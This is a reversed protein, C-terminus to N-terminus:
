HDLVLLSCGVEFTKHVGIKAVLIKSGWQLFGGNRRFNDVSFFLTVLFDVVTWVFNQPMMFAPLYKM